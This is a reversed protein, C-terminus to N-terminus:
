WQDTYTCRQEEPAPPTTFRKRWVRTLSHIWAMGRVLFEVMKDGM